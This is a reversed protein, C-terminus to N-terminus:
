VFSINFADAPDGDGDFDDATPYTITISQKEEDIKDLEAHPDTADLLRQYEEDSVIRVKDNRDWLWKIGRRKMEVAEDDYKFDPAKNIRSVLANLSLNKLNM